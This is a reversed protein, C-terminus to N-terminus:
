ALPLRFLYNPKNLSLSMTGNAPIATIGKERCMLMLIYFFDIDPIKARHTACFDAVNKNWWNYNIVMRDNTWAANWPHPTRDFKDFFPDHEEPAIEPIFTQKFVVNNLFDRVWKIREQTYKICEEETPKKEGKKSPPMYFFDSIMGYIYSFPGSNDVTGLERLFLFKNTAM